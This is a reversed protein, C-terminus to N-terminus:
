KNRKAPNARGRKIEEALRWVAMAYHNSRNYRTIAYFNDFGVWYELKKPQQLEVLIAQAQAPAPGRLKVGKAAIEPITYRTRLGTALLDQYGKGTVRANVVAKEGRKWGHEALYNAVSGIVDATNNWLDKRGDEDFDVAFRRFSSPMFQPQGMAGAYSGTLRFPGLKEERVMLLFNELEKTFFAARPPYNFALTGLADMVKYRGQQAGYRTEVGIIATIVEPAVGYREEARKLLTTHSKMFTIGGSIREKTLFIKKYEHWPKAEAPRTIAAIIDDRVKIEALWSRVTAADFGHTAVMSDVFAQTSAPPLSEPAARASWSLILLLAATPVFRWPENRISTKM